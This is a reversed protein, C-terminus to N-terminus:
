KETGNNKEETEVEPLEGLSYHLTEECKNSDFPIPVSLLETLPLYQPPITKLNLVQKQIQDTNISPIIGLQYRDIRNKLIHLKILKENTKEVYKLSFFHDSLVVLIVLTYLLIILSIQFSSISFAHQIFGVSFQSTNSVPVFAPINKLHGYGEFFLGLLLIAGSFVLQGVLYKKLEHEKPSGIWTNRFLTYFLFTGLLGIAIIPDSQIMSGINRSTDTNILYFYACMASFLFIFGTYTLASFIQCINEVIYSEKIKQIKEKTPQDEVNSCINLSECSDCKVNETKETQNMSGKEFERYLAISFGVVLGSSLIMMWIGSSFWNYAFVDIPIFAFFGIL